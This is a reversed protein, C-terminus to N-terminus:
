QKLFISSGEAIAGMVSLVGSAIPGASLKPSLYPSGNLLSLTSFALIGGTLMMAASLVSVIKNGKGIIAVCAGFLPLLFALIIGASADFVPIDNVTYGLAVQLGTYSSGFIAFGTSLEYRVAEVFIMFFATVACIAAFIPIGWSLYVSTKKKM